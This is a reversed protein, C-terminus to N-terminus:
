CLLESITLSVISVDRLWDSTRAHQITVPCVCIRTNRKYSYVSLFGSLAGMYLVSAQAYPSFQLALKLMNLLLIFLTAGGIRRM